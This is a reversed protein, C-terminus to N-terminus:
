GLLVPVNSVLKRFVIKKVDNFTNTNDHVADLFIILKENDQLGLMYPYMEIRGSGYIIEGSGTGLYTLHVCSLFTPSYTGIRWANQAIVRTPTSFTINGSFETYCQGNVQQQAMEIDPTANELSMGASTFPVGIKETIVHVDGNKLYNAVYYAIRRSGAAAPHGDPQMLRYDHYIFPAGDICRVRSKNSQSSYIIQVHNLFDKGRQSKSWSIMGITIIARPYNTKIYNLTNAFASYIQEDTKTMDNIGGLIVFDTISNKDLDTHSNEYNQLQELFTLSNAWGSGSHGLNIYQAESLGLYEALAPGWPVIPVGGSATDTTNYSDGIIIFKRNQLQLPNGSLVNVETQIEHIQANLETQIEHIQANFDSIKIWYDTNIYSVGPVTPQKSIYSDGDPALVITFADYITNSNWEIPDAFKLEHAPFWKDIYAQMDTVRKILSDLNLEQFNTYPFKDYFAM